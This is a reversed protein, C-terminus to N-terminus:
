YIYINMFKVKNFYENLKNYDQIRKDVLIKLTKLDSVTIKKRNSDTTANSAKNSDNKEVNINLQENTNNISQLEYNVANISPNNDYVAKTINIDSSLKHAPLKNNYIIMDAPILSSKKQIKNNNPQQYLEFNLIDLRDQIRKEIIKVTEPNM